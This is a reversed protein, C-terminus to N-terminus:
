GDEGIGGAILLTDASLRSAVEGADKRTDHWAPPQRLLAASHHFVWGAVVPLLSSM